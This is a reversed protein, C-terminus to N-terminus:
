MSMQFAGSHPISHVGVSDPLVERLLKDALYLSNSGDIVIRRCGTQSVVAGSSTVAGRCLVVVDPTLGIPVHYPRSQILLLTQARWQIIVCGGRKRFPVIGTFRTAGLQMRHVPDIPRSRVDSSDVWVQYVGRSAFDIRTEARAHYITIHDKSAIRLTWVWGLLSFCIISAFAAMWWGRKKRLVGLIAGLLIVNLLMAQARDIYIGRIVSGPLSGLWVIATNMLKIAWYVIFGLAGALPPFVTAPLLALGGVLVVFSLPVVLMNALLFYVPFQHFYFLSISLTALQAAVSVSVVKWVEDWWRSEPEWLRYLYPHLFVIGFVALYSLQFGVSMVFFPDYLLLCFASAAMTNYINTSQKWPRALAVFTFMTVARLVSPSWGTIFAYCWLLVVCVFALLAQGSRTKEFPRGLMVLIGYIISVHLGSVALVHMAGTAAYAQLLEGDLRDSVGLVLASATAQEWAGDIYTRLQRDAWDRVAIAGSILPNGRNSDIRLADLGRVYHQHYINRYALFRQWDFAGPNMPPAVFQPHGRILLVDGYRFPTPYDARALYLLVRGAAPKWRGDAWIHRVTMETRWANSKEENYRVVEVVYARVPHSEYMFHSRDNRATRWSLHVYGLILVISLGFGGVVVRPARKKWLVGYFILLAVFMCIIGGVPIPSPYLIGLFIGVGFFLTVRVMAYPMWQFM